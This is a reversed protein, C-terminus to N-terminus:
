DRAKGERERRKRKGERMEKKIKNEERRGEGKEGWEREGRGRM